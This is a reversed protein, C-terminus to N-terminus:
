EALGIAKAVTSRNRAAPQLVGFHRMLRGPAVRATPTRSNKGQCGSHGAKVDSSQLRLTGIAVQCTNCPAPRVLQVRSNEPQGSNDRLSDCVAKCREALTV